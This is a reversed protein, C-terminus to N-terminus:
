YYYGWAAVAIADRRAEEDPVTPPPAAAEHM